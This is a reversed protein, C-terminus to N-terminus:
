TRLSTKASLGLNRTYRLSFCGRGTREFCEVAGSSPQGVGVVDIRDGTDWDPDSDNALVEIVVPTNQQTDAFDKVAVPPENTLLVRRELEELSVRNPKSSPRLNRGGPRLPWPLKSPFSGFRSARSMMTM